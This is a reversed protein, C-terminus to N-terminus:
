QPGKGITFLEFFERAYNENPNFKTNYHNDLYRLMLNDVTVKKALDKFNGFAYRRLLHHHDFVNRSYNFTWSTTFITHLFFGMRHSMTEDKIAEQMWWM